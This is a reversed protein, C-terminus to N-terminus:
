DGWECLVVGRPAFCAERGPSDVLLDLCVCRAGEYNQPEGSPGKPFFKITPYGSVGFREALERQETADVKAVVVQVAGRCARVCAREVHGGVLAQPAHLRIGSTSHESVEKEGQFVKALKEYIPVLSKCHGCRSM